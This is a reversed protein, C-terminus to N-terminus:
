DLPLPQRVEQSMRYRSVLAEVHEDAIAAAHAADGREIARLIQLHEQNSSEPSEELSALALQYRSFRVKLHAYVRVLTQNGSAEVVASHFRAAGRYYSVTDGDQIALSMEAHLASVQQVQSPTARQAALSAARSEVMGRAEFLEELEQQSTTSVEAGHHPALTVLGEASLIRFAERLPVRSVQLENAFEQEVLRQGSKLSGSAIRERLHDALLEPLLGAKQFPKTNM